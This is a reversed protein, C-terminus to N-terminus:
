NIISALLANLLDVADELNSKDILYLDGPKHTINDFTDKQGGNAFRRLHKEEASSFIHEKLATDIMPDPALDTRTALSSAPNAIKAREQIILTLITRFGIAAVNPATNKTAEFENLLAALKADKVRAIREQLLPRIVVQSDIEKLAADVYRVQRVRLEELVDPDSEEDYGRLIFSLYYSLDLSTGFLFKDGRIWLSYHDNDWAHLDSFTLADKPMSLLKERAERLEAIVKQRLIDM